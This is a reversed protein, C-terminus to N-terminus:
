ELPEEKGDLCANVLADARQNDERRVHEVGCKEFGGILAMVREHYPKLAPHKVRYRGQVQRAILESDIRLRVVSAGLERCMELALVVGEYEAVNNTAVGLRKARTLLEQGSADYVVAACAAQGPNGRAGGDSHATVSLPGERM